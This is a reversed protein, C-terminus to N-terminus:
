LEAKIKEANKRIEEMDGEVPTWKSVTLGDEEWRPVLHMHLHFVAQNAAAGNLQLVNMGDPNFSKRVAGALRHIASAVAAYTEADIDLISEFHKKPVVLLHGPNMPQIDLFGLVQENEYVKFCPIEGAVIKCFICDM